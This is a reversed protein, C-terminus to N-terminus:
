LNSAPCDHREPYALPRRPRRYRYCAGLTTQLLIIAPVAMALSRLSPRWTDEIPEPGRKWSASTVVAIAVICGFFIQALLAHLIGSLQPWARQDSAGLIADLVGEGLCSWGLQTQLKIALGLVLVVAVGGAM